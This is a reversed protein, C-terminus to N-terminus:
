LTRYFINNKIFGIKKSANLSLKGDAGIGYEGDTATYPYANGIYLRVAEGSDASMSSLAVGHIMMNDTANTCINGDVDVWQGETVSVGSALQAFSISDTNVASWLNGANTDLSNDFVISFNKNGAGIVKWPFNINGGVSVGYKLKVAYDGVKTVCNSMECVYEGDAKNTGAVGLWM